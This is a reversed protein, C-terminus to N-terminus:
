SQRQRGDVHDFHTLTLLAEDTPLTWTGTAASAALGLAGDLPEGHSAVLRVRPRLERLRTEFAALLADGIRFLKGTRGIPANADDPAVAHVTEALAAGARVLIYNARADGDRTCAAVAPAFGALLGARQPSPQILGPLQAPPGFQRVLADLLQPSGDPRGDYARLAAALGERGIWAGGGDDGLLHGWGDARRWGREPGLGLAVAGTGAAIVAGPETGITAAYATVADSALVVRRARFRDALAHPLRKRLDGGLLAFGTAGVAITDVTNLMGTASEALLTELAPVAVELVAAADLGAAGIRAPASRDTWRAPADSGLERIGVRVGTGGVDIGAVRLATM